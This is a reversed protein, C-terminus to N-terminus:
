ILCGDPGCQHSSPANPVSAEATALRQRLWDAFRAPSGFFPSLELAEMHGDIELFLSPFGQVGLRAMLARTHAIHDKAEGALGEALATTFAEPELGISVALEVLVDSDAIRRGEAYHATQLRSLLDLGRGAVSEAALMAAIPPESDLMASSDMLLGDFYASGFPQGTLRAIEQDHPMVFERLQPTVSQRRSGTMMGGAHAQVTTVERAAKVLPAAGYCWGCLPDYIYHLIISAHAM